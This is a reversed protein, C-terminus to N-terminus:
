VDQYSVKGAGGGSGSSSSGANTAGWSFSSIEITDKHKDDQSEGKIGDIELLYDSAM